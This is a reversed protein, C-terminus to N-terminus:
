EKGKQEKLWDAFDGDIANRFGTTITRGAGKASATCPQKRTWKRAASLAFSLTNMSWRRATRACPRAPRSIANTM